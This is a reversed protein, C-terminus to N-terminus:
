HVLHGESMGGCGNQKFSRGCGGTSCVDGSFGNPNIAKQWALVNTRVTTADAGLNVILHKALGDSARKMNCQCCCTAASFEKCCPAPISSLAEVRVAEQAATLKIAKDYGILRETEARDGTYAPTSGPKAAQRATAAAGARPAAGAAPKAAATHGQHVHAASADASPKDSAALSPSGALGLAALALVAVARSPRFTSLRM